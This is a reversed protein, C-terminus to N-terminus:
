YYKQEKSKTGNKQGKKNKQKLKQGNKVMLCTSKM